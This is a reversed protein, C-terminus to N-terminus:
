DADDARTDDPRCPPLHGSDLERIFEEFDAHDRPEPLPPEAYRLMTKAM